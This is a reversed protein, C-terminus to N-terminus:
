LLNSYILRTVFSHKLNKLEDKLWPTESTLLSQIEDELEQNYIKQHEKYAQQKLENSAPPENQYRTNLEALHNKLEKEAFQKFAEVEKTEKEM